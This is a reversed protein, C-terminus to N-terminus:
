SLVAQKLRRALVLSWGQVQLREGTGIQRGVEDVDVHDAVDNTDLAISWIRTEEGDDNFLCLEVKTAVESFLSFNTGKGDDTAGQPVTRRAM